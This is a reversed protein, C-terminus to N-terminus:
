RQSTLTGGAHRSTGCCDGIQPDPSPFDPQGQPSDGLSCGHEPPRPDRLREHREAVARIAGRRRLLGATPPMLGRGRDNGFTVSTPWRPLSTAGSTCCVGSMSSRTVTSTSCSTPFRGCRGRACSPIELEFAYRLSGSLPYDGLVEFAAELADIFRLALQEGGEAQYREVAAAVDDHAVQRLRVRKAM